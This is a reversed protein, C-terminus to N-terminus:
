WSASKQGISVEWQSILFTKMSIKKIWVEDDHILVSKCSHLIIEIYSNTINASQKAFKISKLLLKKTINPYFEQIDFKIFTCNIKNKINNFWKLVSHTNKWQQLKTKSKM